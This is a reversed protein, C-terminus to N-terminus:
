NEELISEHQAVDIGSFFTGNILKGNYVKKVNKMVSINYQAFPGMYFDPNFRQKIYNNARCHDNFLQVFVKEPIYADSDFKINESLLFHILSNTSKALEQQTERFYNPLINWINERGYENAKELYIRNCKKIIQAMEKKIKKGLMLDGNKIKQTFRLTVMRRQISGANDVFDPSENGAMVGPIKWEVKASQKYKININVKDGSVISQFEGQEISFDRKIEPAIYLLKDMLDSLGFTKQINNSMVGTDEDEYMEKCVNMVYTSKGTGAQGQVFLIVQWGDLEDIEYILRGTFAYVWEMIEDSINQNKFIQDFAPTNESNDFELDFYKASKCDPISETYEVFKDEAAFYIGNRFSFIRRDKELKPFQSDKCNSLFETAARVCDVRSTINLFQEYNTEKTVSNYIVDSIAGIRKYAHTNHGEPTYIVQYVDSNYRFYRHEHFYGLIYLLFNQYKTNEEVDIAKFRFLSADFNDRFDHAHNTLEQLRKIAICANRSYYVLELLRNVRVITEFDADFKKFTNYMDIIADIKEQFIEDPNEYMKIKNQILIGKLSDPKYPNNENIGYDTELKVLQNLTTNM